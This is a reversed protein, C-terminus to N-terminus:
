WVCGMRKASRMSQRANATTSFSERIFDIVDWHLSTLGAPIGVSPALREAFRTDWDGPDLLFGDTDVRYGKQALDPTEM